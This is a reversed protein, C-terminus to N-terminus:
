NMKPSPTALADELSAELKLRAAKAQDVRTAQATEVQAELAKELQEAVAVHERLIAVQKDKQTTIELSAELLEGRAALVLTLPREGLEYAAQELKAIEQLAAVRERRKAGANTSHDPPEGPTTVAAASAVLACGALVSLLYPLRRTM